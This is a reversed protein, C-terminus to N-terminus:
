DNLKKNLLGLIEDDIERGYRYNTITDEEVIIEAGKEILLKVMDKDNREIAAILPTQWFSYKNADNIDTREDGYYNRKIAFNVKAGNELLQEIISINGKEVAILLPYGIEYYSPQELIEGNYEDYFINIDAGNRIYLDVLATDEENIATYLPSIVQGSNGEGAWFYVYNTHAGNQILIKAVDFSRAHCLTKSLIEKNDTLTILKNLILTDNDIISHELPTSKWKYNKSDPYPFNNKILFNLTTTDQFQLKHYYSNGSTLEEWGWWLCISVDKNAGNELLLTALDWNKNMIVPELPQLNGEELYVKAGNKILYEVLHTNQNKAAIFIASKECLCGCGGGQEFNEYYKETWNIDLGQDLMIEISDINGTECYNLYKKILSNIDLAGLEILKKVILPKISDDKRRNAILLPYVGEKDIYNVNAGNNILEIIKLTDNGKQIEDFLAIHVDQEKNHESIGKELPENEIIEFKNQNLEAKTKKNGSSNNSCQIFVLSILIAIVVKIKM